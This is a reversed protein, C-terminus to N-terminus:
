FRRLRMRAMLALWWLLFPIGVQCTAVYNDLAQGNELIPLLMQAMRNEQGALQSIRTRRSSVTAFEAAVYLANFFIMLAVTAVIVILTILM